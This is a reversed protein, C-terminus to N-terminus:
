ICYALYAFIINLQVINLKFIVNKHSNTNQPSANTKFNEPMVPADWLIPINSKNAIAWPFVSWYKQFKTCDNQAIDHANHIGESLIIIYFSHIIQLQAINVWRM